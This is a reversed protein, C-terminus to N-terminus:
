RTSGSPPARRSCQSSRSATGASRLIPPVPPQGYSELPARQVCCPGLYRSCLCRVQRPAPTKSDALGVCGSCVPVCICHMSVSLTQVGMEVDGEKTLRVCSDIKDRGDIFCAFILDDAQQTRAVGFVTRRQRTQWSLDVRQWRKKVQLWAIAEPHSEIAEEYHSTRCGNESM